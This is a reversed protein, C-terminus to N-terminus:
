SFGLPHSQGFAPRRGSARVVCPGMEMLRLLGDKPFMPNARMPPPVNRFEDVMLRSRDCLMVGALLNGRDDEALRYHFVSSAGQDVMTLQEVDLPAYLDFDAAFRSSQEVLRAVDRPEAPRVIVGPLPDPPASRPPRPKVALPGVFQKCWKKMTAQSATNNGSTGTLIVGDDGFRERAAAVRWRALQLEWVRGAIPM